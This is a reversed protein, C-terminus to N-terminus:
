MKEKKVITTIFSKEALWAIVINRVVESDTLGMEGQLKSILNWQQKSFSVQVRKLSETKDYM